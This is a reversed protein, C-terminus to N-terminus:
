HTGTATGTHDFKSIEYELGSFLLEELKTLSEM